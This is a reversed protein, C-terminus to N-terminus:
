PTDGANSLMRHLLVRAKDWDRQVTRESVNRLAAIEAFSFGCFYKLDVVEVLRPDITALEGLADGVRILEMQENWLEPLETPVSTIQVSGGRKQARRRRAYDIVIGRMARSAYVMFHARDPFVASNRSCVDLYAEHLVSTPSISGAGGIRRLTRAALRHLEGYLAAFLSDATETGIRDPAPSLSLDFDSMSFLTKKRASIKGIHAHRLEGADAVGFASAPREV